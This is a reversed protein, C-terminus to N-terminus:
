SGTICYHLPTLTQTHLLSPKVDSLCLPALTSLLPPPPPALSLFPFFLSLLDMTTVLRISDGSEKIHVCGQNLFLEGGIGAGRGSGCPFHQLTVIRWKVEPCVTRSQSTM